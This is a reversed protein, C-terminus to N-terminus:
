EWLLHLEVVGDGDADIQGPDNCSCAGLVLLSVLSLRTFMPSKPVWALVPM